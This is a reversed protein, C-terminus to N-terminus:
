RYISKWDAHERRKHRGRWWIVAASTAFLLAFGAAAFVLHTVIYVIFDLEM